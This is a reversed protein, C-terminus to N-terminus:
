IGHERLDDIPIPVREGEDDEVWLIHDKTDKLYARLDETDFGTRTTSSYETHHTTHCFIPKM